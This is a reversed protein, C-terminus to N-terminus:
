AIHRLPARSTENHLHVVQGLMEVFAARQAPSLPELIREQTRAVAAELTQLLDDGAPTLALRKTRRDDGVTRTVLGRSELRAVLDGITSRDFAIADALRRQDIGPHEALAALAAFQPPTINSAATEEMFIAVAIQQCRRILHGPTLYLDM